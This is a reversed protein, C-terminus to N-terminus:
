AGLGKKYRRTERPGPGTRLGPTVLRQKKQKRPKSPIATFADYVEQGWNSMWKEATPETGDAV